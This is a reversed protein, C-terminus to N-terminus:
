QRRGAHLGSARVYWDYIEKGTWFVVGPKQLYRYLRELHKFRHPQGSIYAHIPIPMIKARDASEAYLQDFQDVGREYFHKGEHHQLAMITIDNMDFTYPVTVLPGHSTQLTSPEDDHVFDGTYRIGAEALYDPTEFTQTMGPALWGIPRTGTFREIVDLNRKIWARQDAVKQLPIQEYGHAVFEWGADQAAAAIRPYAECVRGNVAFSPRIGLAAFLRFFRWIGVRMGYEHWAWNPVDPLLPEGMPPPLVTRPMPREISWVEMNVVTWVVLRAQGPLRLPPRDVIASYPAREHPPMSSVM